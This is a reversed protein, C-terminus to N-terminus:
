NIEKDKIKSILYFQGYQKQYNLSKKDLTKKLSKQILNHTFTNAAVTDVKLGKKSFYDVMYEGLDLETFKYPNAIAKETLKYWTYKKYKKDKLYGLRCLKYLETYVLIKFEEKQSFFGKCLKKRKEFKQLTSLFKRIIETSPIECYHRKGNNEIYKNCFMMIGSAITNIVPKKANVGIMSRVSNKENLMPKIFKFKSM